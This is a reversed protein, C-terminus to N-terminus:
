RGSWGPNQVLKKGKYLEDLVIPWLCYREPYVRTEFVVRRNFEDSSTASIDMGEFNGNFEQTAIGWRVCDFYRHEEFALEIQRERRIAERMKDQNSPISVDNTGTGYIPIGARERIQNLYILIENLNASYNVENLAEVYNLYMEGLRFYIQAHETTKGAGTNSSSNVFKRCLYGTQSYNRTETNTKGNNGGYYFQVTQTNYASFWKSNNFCISMYFRPERNSYMKFTGKQTYGNDGNATTVGVESYSPDQDIPLGNKTYYMDVVKQTPAWGSWGNVFRPSCAYDMEWFGGSPKAFIIESNWDEIFLNQYSLYPNIVGSASFKYLSFGMNIVEKAADAAKQWRIAKDSNTYDFLETGDENKFNKFLESNNADKNYFDSAAYLLVRSNLAKCTAITIRGYDSTSLPKIEPLKNLVIIQNLEKSIYTFCEKITNRPLTMENVSADPSILNEPLVVVPGYQRVLCFYYWARLYRAESKYQQVLNGPMEKNEDVRNIFYSAARIGKYYHAWTDFWGKDPTLSGLNILSVNYDPYTVDLEDSIATWPAENSWANQPRMYSYVNALYEETTKQHQFVEDMTIQNEPDNDLFDSCSTTSLMLLSCFISYKFINFKM